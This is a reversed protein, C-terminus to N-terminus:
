KTKADIFVLDYFPYEALPELCKSKKLNRVLEMALEEELFKLKKRGLKAFVPKECKKKLAYLVDGVCFYDIKGGRKVAVKVFHQKQYYKMLVVPYSFGADIQKTTESITIFGNSAYFSLTPPYAASETLIPKRFEKLYGLMQAGISRRQSAPEVFLKFLRIYKVHEQFAMFGVIRGGIKAILMKHKKMEKLLASPSNISVFKSVTKQPYIDSLQTEFCRRIINYVSLSNNRNFPFLSLPNM